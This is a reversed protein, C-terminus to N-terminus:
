LRAKPPSAQGTAGICQGLLAVRPCSCALCLCKRYATGHSRNGKPSHSPGWAADESPTLQVGRFVPDGVSVPSPLVNRISGLPAEHPWGPHGQVAAPPKAPLTTQKCLSDLASLVMKQSCCHPNLWFRTPSRRGSFGGAIGSLSKAGGPERLVPSQSPTALPLAM